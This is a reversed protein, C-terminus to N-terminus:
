PSTLSLCHLAQQYDKDQVFIEYEYMDEPSTGISGTRGRMKGRGSWQGSRNKTKYKYPIQHQDLLDRVANFKKLNTGIYVSKQHFFSLM